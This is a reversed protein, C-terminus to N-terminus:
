GVPKGMCRYILPRLKYNFKEEVETQIRLGNIMSRYHRSMSSWFLQIVRDLDLPTFFHSNSPLALRTHAVKDDKPYITSFFLRESTLVQRTPLGLIQLVCILVFYATFLQRYRHGRPGVRWM